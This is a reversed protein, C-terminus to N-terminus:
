VPRRAEPETRHNVLTSHRPTPYGVRESKTLVFPRLFHLFAAIDDEPPLSAQIRTPEGQAGEIKFNLDGQSQAMRSAALRYSNALYDSLRRWEDDSFEGSQEDVIGTVDNTVRIHFPHPVDLSPQHRRVVIPFPAVVM